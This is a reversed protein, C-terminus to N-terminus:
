SLTSTIQPMTDRKEEEKQNKKQYLRPVLVQRQPCRPHLVGLGDSIGLKFILLCSLM